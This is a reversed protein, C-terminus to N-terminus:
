KVLKALSGFLRDRETESLKRLVKQATKLRARVVFRNIERGYSSFGVEIVRRDDGDRSREVLGKKVLQEIARSLTSAPVGLMVALATMAVPESRGLASLVRVETRSCEPVDADQPKRVPTLLESLADLDRIFQHTTTPGRPRADSAAM